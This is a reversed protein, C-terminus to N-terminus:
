DFDFSSARMDVSKVYVESPCQMAPFAVQWRPLQRDVVMVRRTNVASEQMHFQCLLSLREGRPVWVSEIHWAWGSGLTLGSRAAALTSSRAAAPSGGVDLQPLM